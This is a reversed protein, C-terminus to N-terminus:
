GGFYWTLYQNAEEYLLGERRDLMERGMPNVQWDEDLWYELRGDIFIFRAFPQSVYFLDEGGFYFASQGTMNGEDDPETVTLKVAQEDEMWLQLVRGQQLGLEKPMTDSIPEMTSLRDDTNEIIRQVKTIVRQALEEETQPPAEPTEATTSQSGQKPNCAALSTTVLFFVLLRNM